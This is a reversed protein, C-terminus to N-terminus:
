YVFICQKVRKSKIKVKKNMEKMTKINSRPIPAYFSKPNDSALNSVFKDAMTTGKDLACCLSKEIADPAVAGKAINILKTPAETIDFPDVCPGQLMDRIKKVDSNWRTDSAKAKTQAPQKDDSINTDTGKKFETAYMATVLRAIFWRVLAQSRMTLGIIGGAGKLDKNQTTELAYDLWVGNFHGESLM